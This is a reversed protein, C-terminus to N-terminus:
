SYDYKNGHISKAKAVFVENSSRQNGACIPCGRGFLHNNPSQWFEGHDRCIICVKSKASLYSVKSYDYKDGHVKRADAIFEETTKKRSMDCLYSFLPISM